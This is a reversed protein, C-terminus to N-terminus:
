PISIGKEIAYRILGAITHNNTKKMLNQRHKSITNTSIFLKEAIERSSLGDAILAIIQRERKSLENLQKPTKQLSPDKQIGQKAAKLVAGSIEPSFFPNGQMVSQIAQILTDAASQKVLYGSVGAELAELVYEEDSYMSLIIIKLKPNQKLVSRTVELGNINPMSIDMLTIDPKLKIIENSASLGNDTEGIIDINPVSALVLKLGDRVITHDDAIYVSINKNTM